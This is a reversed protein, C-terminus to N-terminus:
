GSMLAVLVAAAAAFLPTLLRAAWDFSGPTSDPAPPTAELAQSVITDVDSRPLPVAESLAGYVAALERFETRCHACHSLHDVPDLTWDVAHGLGVFHETDLHTQNM